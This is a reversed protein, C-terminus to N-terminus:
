KREGRLRRMVADVDKVAFLNLYPYSDRIPDPVLTRQEADFFYLRYGLEELQQYVGRCSYGAATAAEDTFEVQLVPADRQLLSQRAGELVPAEWGEVDIKM